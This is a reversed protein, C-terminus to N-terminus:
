SIQYSQDWTRLLGSCWGGAKTPTGPGVGEGGGGSGMKNREECSGLCLPRPVVSCSHLRGWHGGTRVVGLRGVQARSGLARRKKLM